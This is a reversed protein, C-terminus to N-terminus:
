FSVSGAMHIICSCTCINPYWYLTIPIAWTLSKQPNKIYHTGLQNLKRQGIM